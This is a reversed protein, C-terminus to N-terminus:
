LLFFTFLSSGKKIKESINCIFSLTLISFMLTILRGTLYFKAIEDPNSFYFSIDSTIHILKFLSLIKLVLAVIYIYFSPYEFFNPNFDFKQPNMNSISKLINEEDPHFSRIINFRAREIKKFSKNRSIEWSKEIYEKEIGEILFKLEKENRYFFKIYEKKPLGWRIGMFLFIFSFFLFFIKKIM